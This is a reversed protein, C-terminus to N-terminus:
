LVVDYEPISIGIESTIKGIVFSPFHENLVNLASEAEEQKIVVVFGVGMNFTTFMEENSIKGIEAIIKFIEPIPVFNTLSFGLNTIRKLKKFGSGTVHALGHVNCNELLQKIAAVYIRTPILLEETVSKGNPLKDDPTYKSFLVKRALTFGNSHIGSSTIGIVVDGEAVKSGDVIKDLEVIGLATGAIDFAKENDELLEPITALEGGLIPTSSQKCGEYIGQMIEDIINSDLSAIALYDVFGKPIIGMALLDNVNMAVCDIGITDYKNAMRAVLLKTGVGDTALAIGYNGFKILNAYHGEKAIVDGFEFSAKVFKNISKLVKSEVSLDLGAEKYSSPPINTM